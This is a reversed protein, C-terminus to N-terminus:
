RVKEAPVEVLVLDVTGDASVEGRGVLTGTRGHFLEIVAADPDVERKVGGYRMTGSLRDDAIVRGSGDRVVLQYAPLEIPVRLRIQRGNRLELRVPTPDTTDVDFGRNAFGTGEVLLRARQPPLGAFTFNGDLDAVQRAQKPPLFWRGQADALQLRVNAVPQNDPGVVTGRLSHAGPSLVVQRWIGEARAPVLVTTYFPARGDCEVLLGCETGAFHAPVPLECTPGTTTREVIAQVQRGFGSPDTIALRVSPAPSTLPEVTIAVQLAITTRPLMAVVLRNAGVEVDLAECVKENGNWLSFVRANEVARFGRVHGDDSLQVRYSEWSAVMREELRQYPDKSFMGLLSPTARDIETGIRAPTWAIGNADVLLMDISPLPVLEISQTTASGPALHFTAIGQGFGDADIAMRYDGPPMPQLQFQGQDDTVQYSVPTASAAPWVNIRAKQVVQHDFTSRVVGGTVPDQPLVITIPTSANASLDVARCGRAPSWAVLAHARDNPPPQLSFGGASDTQM